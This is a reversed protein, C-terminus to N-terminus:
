RGSGADIVRCGLPKAGGHTARDEERAIGAVVVGAVDEVSHDVAVRDQNNAGDFGLVDLAGNEEGTLMAERQGDLAAAM